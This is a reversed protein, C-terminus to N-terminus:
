HDCSYGADAGHVFIFLFVLKDLAFKSNLLAVGVLFNQINLFGNFRALFVLRLCWRLNYVAPDGRNLETDVTRSVYRLRSPFMLTLHTPLVFLIDIYAIGITVHDHM